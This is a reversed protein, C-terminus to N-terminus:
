PALMRGSATFVHLEGRSQSQDIRSNLYVIEAQIFAIARWVLSIGDTTTTQASTVGTAGGIIALIILTRKM